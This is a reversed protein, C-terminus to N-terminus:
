KYHWAIYRHYPENPDCSGEGVQWTLKIGNPDYPAESLRWFRSLTVVYGSSDKTALVKDDEAFVGESFYWSSYYFDETGSSRYSPIAEGGYYIRVDGELHCFNNGATHGTVTYGNDIFQYVGALITPVDTDLMTDETYKAPYGDDGNTYLYMGSNLGLEVEPCDLPMREVMAWVYCNGSSKQSYFEIKCSSYYPMLLRLYGAVHSTDSRTVGNFRARFTDSHDFSSGFLEVTAGEIQPSGAGDFTIRIRSVRAELSADNALWFGTIVAPGDTLTFLTEWIQSSCIRRQVQDCKLKGPGPVKPGCGGPQYQVLWDQAFRALDKFNVTGDYNFDSKSYGLGLASLFMIAVAVCVTINTSKM